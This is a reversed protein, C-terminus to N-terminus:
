CWALCARWANLGGLRIFDPIGLYRGVADGLGALLRCGRPVQLPRHLLHDM